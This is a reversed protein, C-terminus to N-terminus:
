GIFRRGLLHYATTQQATRYEQAYERAGQTAKLIKSVIEQRDSASLARIVRKSISTM